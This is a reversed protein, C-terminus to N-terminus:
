TKSKVSIATKILNDTYIQTVNKLFKKVPLNYTALVM